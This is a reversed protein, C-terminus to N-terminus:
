PDRVTLNKNVQFTGSLGLTDGVNILAPDCSANATLVTLNGAGTAALRDTSNTFTGPVFGAAGSAGGITAVCGDTGTITATVGTNGSGRLQGTVVDGAPATHSLAWLELTNTVIKVKIGSPGNCKDAHPAPAGGFTVTISTALPNSLNTGLKQTGTATAVPCSVIAGTSVNTAIVNGVNTGSISTTTNPSVAAGNLDVRWLPHAQAATALPLVLAALAAGGVLATKRLPTRMFSQEKQLM